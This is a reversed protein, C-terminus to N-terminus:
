LGMKELYQERMEIAKAKRMPGFTTWSPSFEVGHLDFESYVNVMDGNIVVYWEILDERAVALHRHRECYWDGEFSLVVKCCCGTVICRHYM